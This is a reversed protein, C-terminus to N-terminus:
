SQGEPTGSAPAGAGAPPAGAPMGEPMTGSPMAAPAEQYVVGNDEITVELPMVDGGNRIKQLGDVILRDGPAIGDTVVWANNVVRDATLVRKEATSGEAVFFATPLGEENFTVARQPVLYVDEQAGFAVTARVFMGPLLLRDPNPMRARLTFTGTTESVVMDMSSVSGEQDYASGDELTLTVALRPPEAAAGDTGADAGAMAARSALLNSSSEVLTIEVPDIQRITTLPDAQNATLLSGVQVNVTGIIGSIPATIRSHELTMNAIRLQAEASTVAARAQALEVEATDLEAQSVGGSTLLTRYRDVKSQATPLQAQASALSAEAVAVDAEYTASDVTAIVDGQKVEQGERMSVSTVLGGVQPRVEATASAVVRGPLVTAVPAAEPQLVVVGVQVPGASGMGPMGGPPGGGPQAHVGAASAVLTVLALAFARISM